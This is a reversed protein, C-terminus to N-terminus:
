FLAAADDLKKLCDGCIPRIVPYEDGRGEIAVYGLDDHSFQGGCLYCRPM